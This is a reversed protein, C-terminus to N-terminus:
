IQLPWTTNFRAVATFSNISFERSAPAVTMPLHLVDLSLGSLLIEGQLVEGFGSPAECRALESKNTTKSRRTLTCRSSSSRIPTPEISGNTIGLFSSM